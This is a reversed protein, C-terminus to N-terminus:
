WRQVSFTPGHRQKLQQLVRKQGERVETVLLSRLPHAREAVVLLPLEEIHGARVQAWDGESTVPLVQGGVLSAWQEQSLGEIGVLEGHFHPSTFALSDGAPRMSLGRVLAGFSDFSLYSPPFALSSSCLPLPDLQYLGEALQWLTPAIHPAPQPSAGALALRVKWEKRAFAAQLLKYTVYQVYSPHILELERSDSSRRVVPPDESGQSEDTVQLGFQATASDMVRRFVRPLLSSAGPLVGEEGRWTGQVSADALWEDLKKLAAKRSSAEDPNDLFGGLQKSFGVEEWLLRVAAPADAGLKVARRTQAHEPRRRELLARLWSVERRLSERVEDSMTVAKEQLPVSRPPGSHPEGRTQELHGALLRARAGAAVHVVARGEERWRAPQELWFPEGRWTGLQVRRADVGEGLLLSRRVLRGPTREWEEWRVGVQEGSPPLADLVEAGTLSAVAEIVAAFSPSSLATWHGRPRLEADFPRAHHTTAWAEVHHVVEPALRPFPRRGELPERLCLRARYWSRELVRGLLASAIFRSYSRGTRPPVDEAFRLESTGPGGRLLFVCVEPDAEEGTEDTVWAWFDEVPSELQVLRFRRPLKELEAENLGRRPGLWRELARWLRERSESRSLSPASLGAHASFRLVEWVARVGPPADASVRARRGHRFAPDADLLWRSLAALEERLGLADASLTGTAM